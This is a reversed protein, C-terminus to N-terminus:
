LEGLLKKSFEPSKSDPRLWINFFLDGFEQDESEFIKKEDYYFISKNENIKIGLFRSGIKTSKFISEFVKTWEDIKGKSLEKQDRMDNITEKVLTEKKIKKNYKLILAFNKKDFQKQNSYLQADYVNWFMFSYNAQGILNIEDFYKSIINKNGQNLISKNDEAYAEVFSFLAFFYLLKSLIKVM